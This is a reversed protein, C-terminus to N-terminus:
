ASLLWHKRDPDEECQCPNTEGGGFHPDPSVTWGSETGCPSHKEVAAAVDAGEMSAPACASAYFAGVVYIYIDGGASPAINEAPLRDKLSTGM